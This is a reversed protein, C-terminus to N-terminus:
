MVVMIKEDSIDLEAVKDNNSEAGERIADILKSSFPIRVPRTSDIGKLTELCDKFRGAERQLEAIFIKDENIDSHMMEILSDINARMFQHDRESPEMSDAEGEIDARSKEDLGRFVDNFRILLEKRLFFENNDNADFARKELEAFAKKLEMYSLRGTSLIVDWDEPSQPGRVEAESMFFFHDCHRCKQVFSIRPCEPFCVYSDTWTRLGSTSFPENTMLKKENGCHPCKAFIPETPESYPEM